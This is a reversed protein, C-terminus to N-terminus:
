EVRVRALDLTSDTGTIVRRGVLRRGRTASARAVLSVFNASLDQPNHQIKRLEQVRVLREFRHSQQFAVERQRKSRHTLTPNSVVEHWFLYKRLQRWRDMWEGESAQCRRPM